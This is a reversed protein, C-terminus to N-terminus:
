VIVFFSYSYLAAYKAFFITSDLALGENILGYLLHLPELNVRLLIEKSFNESILFRSKGYHHGM